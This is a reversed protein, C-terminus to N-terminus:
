KLLKIYKKISENWDFKNKVATKAALGMKKRLDADNILLKLKEVLLEVDKPTVLFGSKNDEIIERTGGVDTAVIARGCKAAEIINTPIGETYSPNVVIDSINVVGMLDQHSMQGLFLVRDGLNKRKVQNELDIRRPGDGVILLVWNKFKILSVAEILDTVGKGDILRGAFLIITKNKYKERVVKNNIIKGIEVGRYVVEYKRGPCLKKCFEASAKSNTVAVDASKLVWRGLTYDFLKGILSKWQSNLKVFDSGHEVHMWSVKHKKSWFGAMVSTMFFRTRSIVWDYNEKSLEKKISWYKKDWFCPLPYNPIIEWAPFRYIKVKKFKTEVELTERPLRPTFVDIEFGNESLYKNFEDAHSELGGVHPLYYPCFVLIKRKM